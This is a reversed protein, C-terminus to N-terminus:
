PSQQWVFVVAKALLRWSRWLKEQLTITTYNNTTKKEVALRRDKL